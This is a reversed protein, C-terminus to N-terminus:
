PLLPSEGGLFFFWFLFLLAGPPDGPGSAAGMAEPLATVAGKGGERWLSGM